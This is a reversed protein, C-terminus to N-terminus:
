GAGRTTGGAPRTKQFILCHSVFPGGMSDDPLIARLLMREGELVKMIESLRCYFTRMGYPRGVKSRVQRYVRNLRSEDRRLKGVLENVAPNLFTGVQLYAIGGPELVRCISALYRLAFSEPIHQLSLLSLVFSYTGSQLSRLGCDDCRIFRVSDPWPRIRKAQTLMERSIDVADVRAFRSALAWTLRGVGCGFDLAVEGTPKIGLGDLRKFAHAVALEGTQFFEEDGWLGGQKDSQTLVAWKPDVRAFSDWQKQLQHLNVM